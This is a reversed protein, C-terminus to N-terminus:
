WHQSHSDDDCGISSRGFDEGAIRQWGLFDPVSVQRNELEAHAISRELM